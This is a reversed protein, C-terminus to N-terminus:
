TFGPRKVVKFIFIGVHKLNTIFYQNIINHIKDHRDNSQNNNKKKNSSIFPIENFFGVLCKRSASDIILNAKLQLAIFTSKKGGSLPNFKDNSPKIASEEFHQYQIIEPNTIEFFPKIIRQATNTQQNLRDISIRLKEVNALVRGQINLLFCYMIQMAAFAREVWPIEMQYTIEPGNICQIQAFCSNSEEEYNLIDEMQGFFNDQLKDAKEDFWVKISLFKIKLFSIIPQIIILYFVRLLHLLLGCLDWGSVIKWLSDVSVRAIKNLTAFIQYGPRSKFFSRAFPLSSIEGIMTQVPRCKLYNLPLLLNKMQNLNIKM